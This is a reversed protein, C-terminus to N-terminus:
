RKMTTNFSPRNGSILLLDVYAYSLNYSPTKNKPMTVQVPEQVTGRSQSSLSLQMLSNHMHGHAHADVVVVSSANLTWWLQM